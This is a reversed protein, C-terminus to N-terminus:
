VDTYTMTIRSTVEVGTGIITSYNSDNFIFPVVAIDPINITFDNHIVCEKMIKFKFNFVRQYPIESALYNTAQIVTNPQMRYMKLKMKNVKTKYVDSNLIPKNNYLFNGLIEGECSHSAKEKVILIGMWGLLGANSTEPTVVIRMRVYRIFIKSGIRQNDVTGVGPLGQYIIGPFISVLSGTTLINSSSSYFIECLKKEAVQNLRRKFAKNRRIFRKKRFIRKKRKFLKRKKFM